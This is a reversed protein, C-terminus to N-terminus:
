TIKSCTCYLEMGDSATTNLKHSRRNSVRLPRIVYCRIFFYSALDEANEQLVFNTRAPVQLRFPEVRMAITCAAWKESPSLVAPRPLSYPVLGRASRALRFIREPTMTTNFIARYFTACIGNASSSSTIWVSEASRVSLVSRMRTRGRLDRRLSSRRSGWREFAIASHGVM